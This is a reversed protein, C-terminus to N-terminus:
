KVGFKLAPNAHDFDADNVPVNLVLDKYLYSEELHSETGETNSWRHHECAIPTQLQDDFFLQVQKFLVVKSPKPHEFSALTCPRGSIEHGKTITVKVNPDKLLEEEFLAAVRNAFNWIGINTVPRRSVAKAMDDDPALKVMPMVKRKWGAPSVLMKGDHAGELWIVQQGVDPARWQMYIGLPERRVKVDMVNLPQLKDDIREQKQFVASLSKVGAMRENAIALMQRCAKIAEQGELKDSLAAAHTVASNVAGTEAVPEGGWFGWAAAGGVALAAAAKLWIRRKKAIKVPASWDGGHVPVTAM